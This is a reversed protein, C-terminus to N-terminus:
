LRTEIRQGGVGSAVKGHRAARNVTPAREDFSKGVQPLIAYLGKRPARGDGGSVVPLCSYNEGGLCGLTLDVKTDKGRPEDRWIRCVLSEKPVPPMINM